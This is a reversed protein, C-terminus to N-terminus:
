CAVILHFPLDTPTGDAAYTQIGVRGSINSVTIRGAPVTTADTTGLAATTACGNVSRAFGVVYTGVATDRGGSTANGAVFAGSSQLAAFFETAAPGAPGQPGVPGDHGRLARRAGASLDAPRLSGNKVERSRVAGPRLQQHGVSNHPLTLAAYSTGGLAITLALTAAVNAYTLHDRLRTLM